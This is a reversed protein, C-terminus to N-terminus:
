GEEEEEAEDPETRPEALAEEPRPVPRDKIGPDVTTSRRPRYPETRPRGCVLCSRVRHGHRLRTRVTRGEVWFSSCRRCYMERYAKPLRVTYRQAVRGALRLYRDALALNGTVAERRALSFLEDIRERAIRVM